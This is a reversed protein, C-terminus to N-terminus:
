ETTIPPEEATQGEVLGTFQQIWQPASKHTLNVKLHELMRLASGQQDGSTFLDVEMSWMLDKRGEVLWKDFAPKRSKDASGENTWKELLSGEHEIRKLWGQRLAATTTHTRLPPLIVDNYLPAISLPSAPWGSTKIAHLEYAKAFVSNMVPSELTKKQGKLKDADRLIAELVAIGKSGMKSIDETESAELSLVLWNLQHRLAIRFGLSDTREKHKKKWDRFESAKKAQDEFNLKEICNLYLAHAAAESERASRFATLAVSCRGNVTHDCNEQIQELKELLLERDIESLTKEQAFGIATAAFTLALSLLRKM